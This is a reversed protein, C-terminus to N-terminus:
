EPRSPGEPLLGKAEVQLRAMEELQEQEAAIALLQKECDEASRGLTGAIEPHERLLERLHSMPRPDMPGRKASELFCRAAEPHVGQGQLAVGLNKHANHRRSEIEIARRCWKEAERFEGRQNLVFGLNNHALYATSPERPNLRIVNRYCVEAKGLEDAMESLQGLALFVLARDESDDVLDLVREAYLKALDYQRTHHYLNALKWLVPVEDEQGRLAELLDREIDEARRIEGGITGVVLNALRSRTDRKEEPAM